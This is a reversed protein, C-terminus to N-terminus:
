FDRRTTAEGIFQKREIGTRRKRVFVHDHSKLVIDYKFPFYDITIDETEQSHIIFEYKPVLDGPMGAKEILDSLRMKEDLIYAKRGKDPDEWIVKRHIVDININTIPVDGIEIPMTDTSSLVFSPLAPGIINRSVLGLYVDGIGKPVRTIFGSGYFDDTNIDIDAVRGEEFAAKTWLALAFDNEGPHIKHIFGSLEVIDGLYTDMAPIYDPFAANINGKTKLFLRLPRVILGLSVSNISIKLNMTKLQLSLSIQRSFEKQWRTHKQAKQDM